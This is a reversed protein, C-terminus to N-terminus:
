VYLELIVADNKFMVYSMKNSISHSCLIIEDRGSENVHMYVDTWLLPIHYTNVWIYILVAMHM